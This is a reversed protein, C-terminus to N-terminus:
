PPPSGPDFWQFLHVDLHRGFKFGVERMVGISRFGAREHLRVSAPNGEAIRAIITHLGQLRAESILAALLRRGVGRGQWDSRVYVSVEATAAYATRESWASLSSWGVITEGDLAVLVPHSRGHADLWRRQEEASRPETDFTAVTTAVADNYIAAIAAADEVLAPRVTGGFVTTVVPRM